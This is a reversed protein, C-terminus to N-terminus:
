QAKCFTELYEPSPRLVKQFRGWFWFIFILKKHIKVNEKSKWWFNNLPSGWYKEGATM